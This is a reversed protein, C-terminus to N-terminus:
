VTHRQSPGRTSRAVYNAVVHVPSANGTSRVRFDIGRNIGRRSIGVVVNDAALGIIVHHCGHIRRSGLAAIGILSRRHDRVRLAIFQALFGPVVYASLGESRVVAFSKEDCPLNQPLLLGVWCRDADSGAISSLLSHNLMERATIWEEGIQVILFPDHRLKSCATASVNLRSM